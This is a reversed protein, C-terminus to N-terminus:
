RLNKNWYNKKFVIKRSHPFVSRLWQRDITAPLHSVLITKSVPSSSLSSVRFSQHNRDQETTSEPNEISLDSSSPTSLEVSACGHADSTSQSWLSLQETESVADFVVQAKEITFPGSFQTHIM